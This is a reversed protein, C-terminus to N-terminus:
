KPPSPSAPAAGGEIRACGPTLGAARATLEKEAELFSRVNAPDVGPEAGRGQRWMM